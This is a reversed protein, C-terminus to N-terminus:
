NQEQNDHKQQHINRSARNLEKELRAREAPTVNGDSKAFRENVRIRAEEAELRATERRTLEGSKVGQRIRAQQDHQRENIVPTKVGAAALGAAPVVVACIVAGCLISVITRKM